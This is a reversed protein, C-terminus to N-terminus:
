SYRNLPNDVLFHEGDYMTLSWFGRAPPMQDKDFAHPIENRWQM